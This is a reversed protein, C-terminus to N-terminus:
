EIKAVIVCVYTGMHAICQKRCIHALMNKNHLQTYKERIIAIIISSFMSFKSIKTENKNIKFYEHM